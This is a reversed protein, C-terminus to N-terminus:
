IKCGGKKKSIKRIRKAVKARQKAQKNVLKSIKM